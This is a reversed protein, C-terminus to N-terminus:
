VGFSGGLVGATTIAGSACDDGSFRGGSFLRCNECVTGDRMREAGFADTAGRGGGGVSSSKLGYAGFFPLPLAMPKPKPPASSSSPAASPTRASLPLLRSGAACDAGRLSTTGAAVATAAAGVKTGALGASVASGVDVGAGALGAALSGAGAASATRRALSGAGAFTLAFARGTVRAGAASGLGCGVLGALLPIM